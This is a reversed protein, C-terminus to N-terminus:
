ERKTWIDRAIRRVRGAARKALETAGGDGLYQKVLALDRRVAETPPLSRNRVLPEAGPLRDAAPMPNRCFSILPALVTEWTFRERVVAIRERAARAFEDDYLVRRLAEALAEPNEPPVVVGLGEARVLDAFSDGDTTVIPLGAWLYDLVRTRFAFTTEIHEHHTTVGCDADMLWNQREAYPVWTENFFVHRDTLGLRNALMRTHGAIDMTPVEPNPHRMGLFVLRVDNHQKSLLDVAHLLTLPDLWSYVGGAWLTM